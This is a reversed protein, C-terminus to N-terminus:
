RFKISREEKWREIEHMDVFTYGQFKLTTFLGQSLYNRMVSPKIDLEEAAREVSLTTSDTAIKIEKVKRESMVVPYM